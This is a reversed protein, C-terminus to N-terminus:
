QLQTYHLRVFGTSYHVKHTATAILRLLRHPSCGTDKKSLICLMPSMSSHYISASSSFESACNHHDLLVLKLM